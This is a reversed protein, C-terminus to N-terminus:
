GAAVQRKTHCYPCTNEGPKAQWVRGCNACKYARVTNQQGCIPCKVREGYHHVQFDSYEKVTMPFGTKSAPCSQNLCLFYLGDPFDPTNAPRHFVVFLVVLLTALTIGGIRLTKANIM